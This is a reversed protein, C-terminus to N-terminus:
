TLVELQKFLIEQETFLSELEKAYNEVTVEKTATKIQENLQELQNEVRLKMLADICGQLEEEIDNGYQDLTEDSKIIAKRILQKDKDDTLKEELALYDLEGSDSIVELASSITILDISNKLIDIFTKRKDEKCVILDLFKLEAISPSIILEQEKINQKELGLKKWLSSTLSSDIRLLKMSLDFYERKEVDNSVNSIITLVEEAAKAKETANRMDYKQMIRDVSFRFWSVAMGRRKEFTDRGFERIYEDPDRKDPLILVKVVFGVKTLMKTARESAKIGASDGDYCIVVKDTFRKLTNAQGETFSTGLSAIANTVGHQYLSIVDFYGETLLAFGRQRINDKNQHLGYLHNGKIYLVTEPSNLYKPELKGIARGGFAIVRGRIDLLPTILRQRFLDYYDTKKENEKFLGSSLIEDKTFANKDTIKQRLNNWSNEAFGLQFTDITEQTIGREILYTNAEENYELQSMWHIMSLKNLELIKEQLTVKKDQEPNSSLKPLTMGYKDALVKVAEIFTLGEKEIIFTISDGGNGCSFCHYLKKSSSVHFSPTKESHFPCLGSLGTGQKKLTVYEGIISEISINSRLEELFEQPLSVSTRVEKELRKM